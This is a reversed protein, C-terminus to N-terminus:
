SRKADLKLIEAKLLHNAQILADERHRHARLEQHIEAGRKEALHRMAREEKVQQALPYREIQALADALGAEYALKGIAHVAITHRDHEEYTELLKGLEIV